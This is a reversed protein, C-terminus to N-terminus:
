YPINDEDKVSRRGADFLMDGIEQTIDFAYKKNGEERQREYERAEAYNAAQEEQYTETQMNTQIIQYHANPWM